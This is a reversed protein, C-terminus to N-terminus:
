SVEEYDADIVSGGGGERQHREAMSAVLAAALGEGRRGTRTPGNGQRPAEAPALCGLVVGPGWRRPLYERLRNALAVKAPGGFSWTRAPIALLEATTWTGSQEGIRGAVDACRHIELQDLLAPLDPPLDVAGVRVPSPEVYPEPPTARSPPDQDQDLPETHVSDRICM